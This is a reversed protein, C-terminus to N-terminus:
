AARRRPMAKKAPPMAAEPASSGEPIDAGLDLASAHVMHATEYALVDSLRYGMSRPQGRHDLLLVLAEPFDSSRVLQYATTRGIPWREILEPITLFRDIATTTM